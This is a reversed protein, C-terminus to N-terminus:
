CERSVGREARHTGESNVRLVSHGQDLPRQDRIWFHLLVEFFASRSLGKTGSRFISRRATTM